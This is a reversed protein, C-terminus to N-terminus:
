GTIDEMSLAIVQLRRDAQSRDDGSSNDLLWHYCERAMETNGTTEFLLGLKLRVKSMQELPVGATKTLQTLTDIAGTTDGSLELCVALDWLAERREDESVSEALVAEYAAIAGAHNGANRRARGLLMIAETQLDEDLEEIRIAELIANAKEWDGLGAMCVAEKLRATPGAEGKLLILAKMEEGARILAETLYRKAMGIHASEPYLVLFLVHDAVTDSPKDSHFSCIGRKLLSDELMANEKIVNPRLQETLTGDGTVSRLAFDFGEAARVYDGKQFLARALLYKAPVFYPSDAYREIITQLLRRGDDGRGERIYSDGLNYYARPLLPSNPYLSILQGYPVLSERSAGQELFLSGVADLLRDGNEYGPKLVLLKRLTVGATDPDRKGLYCRVMGVLATEKYEENDTADLIERFDGLAEVYEGTTLRKQAILLRYRTEQLPELGAAIAGRLSQIAPGWEERRLYSEGMAGLARGRLEDEPYKELFRQFVEISKESNDLENYVLGCSFLATKAFEPDIEEANAASEFLAGAEEKKGADYRVKGLWYNVTGELSRGNERAAMKLLKTGAEEIKGMKYLCVAQALLANPSGALRFLREAKKYEGRDYHIQGLMMRVDNVHGGSKRMSLYKEFQAVAFDLLGDRYAGLGLAYTEEATACIAPNASLFFAAALAM